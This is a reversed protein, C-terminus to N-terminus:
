FVGGLSGLGWYVEAYGGLAAQPDFRELAERRIREAPKAGATVRRVLEVIEGAGADGSVGYVSGPSVLEANGTTRYVIAPTGCLLSEATVKGFTEEKSTQLVIDAASYYEPLRAPDVRGVAAINGPLERKPETGALVIKENRNLLPAIALFTDLGKRGTWYPAVGLIMKDGPAMNLRKRLGDADTPKFLTGDVWNYIRKWRVTPHDRFVFSQKAENLVWDSVGVVGLRGIRAFLDRRRHAAQSSRNFFWTKIGYYGRPCGGCGTRWKGCGSQTYHVCGGTYFWCDHLTLCLAGNRNAIFNLLVPLSLYHSHVNHLHVVDPAIRDIYACLKKTASRSGHAQYGTVREELTHIKQTLPTGITYFNPERATRFAPSAIFSGHGADLLYRHIDRALTGTSGNPYCANVQLIRM